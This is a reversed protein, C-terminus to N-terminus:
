GDDVDDQRFDDDAAPRPQEVILPREVQLPQEQELRVHNERAHWVLQESLASSDPAIRATIAVASSARRSGAAAPEDPTAVPRRPWTVTPPLLADCRWSHNRFNMTM